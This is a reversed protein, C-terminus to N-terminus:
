KILGTLLDALFTLSEGVFVLVTQRESKRRAIEADIVTRMESRWSTEHLKKAELLERGSMKKVEERAADM